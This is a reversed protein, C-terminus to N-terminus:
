SGALKILNFGLRMERQLPDRRQGTIEISRSKPVLANVLYAARDPQHNNRFFVLHPGPACAWASRAEIRIAGTGDRMEQLSPFQSRVPELHQRRGDLELVIENLVRNVYARAEADSIQGDHNTSISFFILPAVDVGPTLDMELVIQDPSLAFRTAQLYEDLRHAWAAAVFSTLVAISAILTRLRM